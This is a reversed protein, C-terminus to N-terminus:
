GEVCSLGVLRLGVYSFKLTLIETLKRKGLLNNLM